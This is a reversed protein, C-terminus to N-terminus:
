KHKNFANIYFHRKCVCILALITGLVCKQLALAHPGVFKYSIVLMECLLSILVLYPLIEIMRYDMIKDYESKDEKETM